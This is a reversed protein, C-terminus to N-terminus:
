AKAAKKKGKLPPKKAAAKTTQDTRIHIDRQPFPIEIGKEKLAYWIDFRAQSAGKMMDSVNEVFFRVDFILASDGFDKFVVSPEPEALALPNNSACSLLVERVTEPDADYSVGVSVVTRGIKNGHTWNMVSSSILESNPVIISTRDFTEIETSRVNISKVIGQGSSVIVWDGVKIPREFLLILGSVFNNVVSQLGFGIGVSLAGAILALNTLNFGFASLAAFLAIITGTYGVIQVLSSRVSDEIKTNPLIRQGLIRQLSRTIFLLLFFVLISMIITAISLRMTGVEVGFFAQRGWERIEAWETGFLSAIVPICILILLLDLTLSAWFFVLKEERTKEGSELTESPAATTTGDPASSGNQMLADLKYLSPRIGARLMMVFAIFFFLLVMQVYIYRTLSPYGLLNAGIIFVGTLSVLYFLKRPLYFRSRGSRSRLALSSFFILLVAFVSSFLYSQAVVLELPSGALRSYELLVADATYVLASLIILWKMARRINGSLYLYSAVITLAAFLGALLLTHEAFVRVATDMEPVLLLIQYLVFLVAATCLFPIATAISALVFPTYVSNEKYEQLKNKLLHRTIVASGAILFIGLIIAIQLLRNQAFIETLGSRIKSQLDQLADGAAAWLGINLPTAQREMLQGVFLGRRMVSLRELTRLARAHAAEAQRLAAELTQVRAQRVERAARIDDSERIVGNEEAPAEGLDNLADRATLYHARIEESIELLDNRINRLLNRADTLSASTLDSELMLADISDMQAQKEQLQMHLEPLRTETFGHASLPLLVLFAFFTFVSFIRFSAGAATM